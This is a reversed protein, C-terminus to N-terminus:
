KIDQQILRILKIAHLIEEDTAGIDVLESPVNFFYRPDVNYVDIIKQLLEVPTDYKGREIKSLNSKDHNVKESLSQLSDKNETRLIRIKTGINM